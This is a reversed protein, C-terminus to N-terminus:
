CHFSKHFKSKNFINKRRQCADKGRTLESSKEGRQRSFFFVNRTMVTADRLGIWVVEMFVLGFIHASHAYVCVHTSM